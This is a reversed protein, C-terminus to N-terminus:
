SCAIKFTFAASKEYRKRLDVSISGFVAIYCISVMGYWNQGTGHWGLRHTLNTGANGNRITSSLINPVGVSINGATVGTYRGNINVDTVNNSSSDQMEIAAFPQTTTLFTNTYYSLFGQRPFRTVFGDTAIIVDITIHVYNPSRNLKGVIVYSQDATTTIGSTSTLITNTGNFDVAPNGNILRSYYTPRVTAETFDTTTARNSWTTLASGNSVGTIFRSDLVIIAGSSKANLHRNRRHM